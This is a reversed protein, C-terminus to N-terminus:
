LPSFLLFFCFHFSLFFNVLQPLLLQSFLLSLPFLLNIIIRIEFKISFLHGIIDTSDDDFMDFCSLAENWVRRLTSQQKM